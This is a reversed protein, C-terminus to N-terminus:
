KNAKRRNCDACLMQCNEAVTKGGQSWPTIHDAQMEELEFHNQCKICIGQQREYAARKMRMDFARINLYRDEGSLLYQYIGKRNTVDEDQMLTAVREELETPNYSNDKFQNYLYGWEIGQMERRYQPFLTKVWSIVSEFYLWLESANTNGQHNAMYSDITTGDRDAIWKLATELYAQRDMEGKLHAKAVGYAPCNSKSFYRKASILWEGTYVANRMEQATLPVSAINIIKFWDLKEKDTGDCIYVMLKYDLIQERETDTLGDFLHGEHEYGWEEDVYRCISITRQQGDLLEYSGDKNIAWYMVNLPFGKKVSSMVANRKKDDYVFERQYAPRINLRGGYGVVGGEQDDKYGAVVDRIPIERLEIKM